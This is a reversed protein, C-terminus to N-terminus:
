VCVCLFHSRVWSLQYTCSYLMFHIIVEKISKLNLSVLFKVPILQNLKVKKKESHTMYSDTFSNTM